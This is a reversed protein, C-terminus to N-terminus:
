KENKQKSTQKNKNTKVLTNSSPTDLDLGDDGEAYPAIYVWYMCVYMITLLLSVSSSNDPSFQFIELFFM